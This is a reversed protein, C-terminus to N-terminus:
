CNIRSEGVLLAVPTDGSVRALRVAGAADQCRDGGSRCSDGNHTGGRRAPAITRVISAHAPATVRM